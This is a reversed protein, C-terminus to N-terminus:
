QWHERDHACAETLARKFHNDTPRWVAATPHWIRGVVNSEPHLHTM